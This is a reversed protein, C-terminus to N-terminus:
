KSNEKDKMLNTFLENSINVYTEDFKYPEDFRVVKNYGGCYPVTDVSYSGIKNMSEELQNSVFDCDFKNIDINFSTRNKCNDDLCKYFTTYITAEDPSGQRGDVYGIFDMRKSIVRMSLINRYDFDAYVGVGGCEKPIKLGADLLMSSIHKGRYEPNVYLGSLGWYCKKPDCNKPPIFFPYPLQLEALKEVGALKGDVFAGLYIAGEDIADKIEELQPIYLFEVPGNYTKYLNSIAQHDFVMYLKVNQSGSNFNDCINEVINYHEMKKM